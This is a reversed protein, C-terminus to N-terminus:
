PIIVIEGRAITVVLGVGELTLGDDSTTTVQITLKTCYRRRKGQQVSWADAICREGADVVHHRVVFPRPVMGATRKIPKAV